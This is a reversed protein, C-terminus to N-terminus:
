EARVASPRRLRSCNEIMANTMAASPVRAKMVPLPMHDQVVRENAVEADDREDRGAQRGEALRAALDRADSKRIRRIAKRITSAPSASEIQRWFRPVNPRM